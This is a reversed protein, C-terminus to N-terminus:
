DAMAYAKCWGDPSVDGEVVKCRDPNEFLTCTACAQIGNPRDQYQAQQKSMKGVGQASSRKPRLPSLGLVAALSAIALRLFQRKSGFSGGPMYDRM